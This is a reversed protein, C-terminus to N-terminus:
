YQNRWVDHLLSRARLKLTKTASKSSARPCAGRRKQGLNLRESHLVRGLYRKKKFNGM